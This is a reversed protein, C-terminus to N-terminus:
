GHRAAIFQQAAEFLGAILARAGADVAPTKTRSM